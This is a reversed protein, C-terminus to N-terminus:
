ENPPYYKELFIHAPDPIQIAILTFIYGLYDTSDDTFQLALLAGLVAFLFLEICIFTFVKISLKVYNRVRIQNASAASGLDM